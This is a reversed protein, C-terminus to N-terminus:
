EKTEKIEEVTIMFKHEKDGMKWVFSMQNPLHDMPFFDLSHQLSKFMVNMIDNQLTTESMLIKQEHEYAKRGARFRDYSM